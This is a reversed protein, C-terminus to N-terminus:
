KLLSNVTKLDAILLTDGTQLAAFPDTIGNIWLVLWWYDESQYLERAILDARNAYAAPITFKGVVPIASRYAMPLPFYTAVGKASTFTGGRTSWMAETPTASIIRGNWDNVLPM